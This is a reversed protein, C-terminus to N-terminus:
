TTELPQRWSFVSGSSNSEVLEVEGDMSEALKRSLALGLGTGEVGETQPGRSFEQFLKEQFEPEIGPGTDRVVFEAFDDLTRLEVTVGGTPTFKIANAIINRGIQGGRHYDLLVKVPEEPVKLQMDLGKQEALGTLSEVLEHALDRLDVSEREFPLSRNRLQSLTLLAEVQQLLGQANRHIVGVGNLQAPSMEGKLGDELMQCYGLIVTLPTRLEHSATAFILEKADLAQKLESERQVLKQSMDNFSHALEALETEAPIPVAVGKEGKSLARVARLLEKVPRNVYRALLSALVYFFIFSFLLGWMQRGAPPRVVLNAEWLTQPRQSVLSYGSEGVGVVAAPEAPLSQNSVLTVDKAGSQSLVTAFETVELKELQDALRHLRNEEELRVLRAAVKPTLVTTLVLTSLVSAIVILGLSVLWFRNRLSVRAKAKLAIVWAGCV